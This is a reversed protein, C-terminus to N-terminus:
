SPTGRALFKEVFVRRGVSSIATAKATYLAGETLSITYPLTGEYRGNSGAIYDLTISSGSVLAGASDYLAGTVTADNIWSKTRKNQLDDLILRNDSDPPILSAM